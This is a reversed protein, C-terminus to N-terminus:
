RRCGGRCNCCRSDCKGYGCCPTSRTGDRCKGPIFYIPSSSRCCKGKRRRRRRNRRNRRGRRGRGLRGALRGGLNLRPRGGRGFGPVRFRFRAVSPAELATDTAVEDESGTPAAFAVAVMFLLVIVVSLKFAM